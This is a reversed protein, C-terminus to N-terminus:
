RGTCPLELDILWPANVAENKGDRIAANVMLTEKGFSIPVTNAEPYSNVKSDEKRDGL